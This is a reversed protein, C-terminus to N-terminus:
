VYEKIVEYYERTNGFRHFTMRIPLKNFKYKDVYTQYIINAEINNNYIAKVVENLLKGIRIPISLSPYIYFPIATETYEIARIILISTDITEDDIPVNTVGLALPPPPANHNVISIVVLPDVGKSIM